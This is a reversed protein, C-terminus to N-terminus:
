VTLMFDSGSFSRGNYPPAHTRALNKINRDGPGVEHEAFRSAYQAVGEWRAVPPINTKHAGTHNMLSEGYLNIVEGGMALGVADRFGM